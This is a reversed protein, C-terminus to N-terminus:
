KQDGDYVPPKDVLGKVEDLPKGLTQALAEYSLGSELFKDNLEKWATTGSRKAVDNVPNARVYLVAYNKILTDEQYYAGLTFWPSHNLFAGAESFTSAYSWMAGPDEHNLRDSYRKAEYLRDQAFAQGDKFEQVQKENLSSVTPQYVAQPWAVNLAFL